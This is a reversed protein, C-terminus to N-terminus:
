FLVSKTARLYINNSNYWLDIYLIFMQLPPNSMHCYVNLNFISKCGIYKRRNGEPICCEESIYFQSNNSFLKKPQRKKYIEISIKLSQRVIYM